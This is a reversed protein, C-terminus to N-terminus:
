SGHIGYISEKRKSYKESMQKILFVQDVCGRGMRFGCQEEGTLGEIMELMCCSKDLLHNGM